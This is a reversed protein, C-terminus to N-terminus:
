AENSQTRRIPVVTGKNKLGDLYDAWAQMMEQRKALHQSHDYSARVKNSEAHALQREIADPPWGLENLTTSALSRFGHATMQTKAYGLRRLAANLTNSSIPRELTRESPFVYHGQGTLPHLEALITLAQNSLPVIHKRRMKMKKAPITWQPSDSELDFESWEAFRLEGPRVFVYPLFRLASAVTFSGSYGDIARLLQGIENPRTITPHHTVKAPPLAGKLSATPDSEAMGCAVAYRCAMGIMGMLRHATELAGRSEVRRAVALVEPPTLESIPKTGIWPFADKELATLIRQAHGHTWTPTFKEHWQRAVYEFSEDQARQQEKEAKREAAPDIGNALMKKAEDRRERAEKLSITPYVGLSLRKEKGGFRFKLRWWKGGSPAVELYLGGSDFMRKIKSGPKANRVTVDTLPM